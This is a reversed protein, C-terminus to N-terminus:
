ADVLAIRSNGEPAHLITSRGRVEIRWGAPAIFTNGEVTKRPSDAALVEGAPTAGQPSPASAAQLPLFAVILLHSIVPM